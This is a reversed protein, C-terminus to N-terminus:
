IYTSFLGMGLFSIGYLVIGVIALIAMYSFFYQLYKVGEAVMQSDDSLLGQKTLRSFKILFYAVVGYIGGVVIFTLAIVLGEVFGVLAGSIFMTMVGFIILFLGLISLIIWAFIGAWKTAALLNSKGDDNLLQPTSTVSEM